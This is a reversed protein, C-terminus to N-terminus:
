STLWTFGSLTCLACHRSSNVAGMKNESGHWHIRFFSKALPKFRREMDSDKELFGLSRIWSRRPCRCSRVWRVLLVFDQYNVTWDAISSVKRPTESKLQSIWWSRQWVASCSCKQTGVTMENIILWRQVNWRSVVSPSDKSKHSPCLYPIFVFSTHWEEVGIKTKM